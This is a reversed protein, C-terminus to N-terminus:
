GVVVPHKMQIFFRFNILIYDLCAQVKNFSSILIDPHDTPKMKHGLLTEMHQSLWVLASYIIVTGVMPAICEKRSCFNHSNCIIKTSELKRNSEEASCQKSPHMARPNQNIPGHLISDGPICVTHCFVEPKSIIHAHATSLPLNWLYPSEWALKFLSTLMSVLETPQM